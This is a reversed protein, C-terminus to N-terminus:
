RWRHKKWIYKIMERSYEPREEPKEKKSEMKRKWAQYNPCIGHCGILRIECGKCPCGGTVM